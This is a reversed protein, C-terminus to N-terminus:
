DEPTRVALTELVKCQLKPQRGLLARFARGPIVFTRVPTVATVTATRPSHSLLAIEGIFERPGRVMVTEGDREVGISGDLILFLSEGPEGEHTLAAGQTFSKEYGLEAIDRLERKSCHSLLSVHRLLSTSRRRTLV